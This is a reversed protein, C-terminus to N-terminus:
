GGYGANVMYWIDIWAAVGDRVSGPARDDAWEWVTRGDLMRAQLAGPCYVPLLGRDASVAIDNWDVLGDRVPYAIVDITDFKRLLQNLCEWAQAPEAQAPAGTSVVSAGVAVAAAAAALARRLRVGRRMDPTVHAAKTPRM